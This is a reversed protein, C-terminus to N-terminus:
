SITTMIANDILPPEPSDVCIRWNVLALSVMRPDLFNQFILDLNSPNKKTKKLQRDLYWWRRAMTPGGAFRWKIANRQRAFSSGVNFAPRTAKHKKKQKKKKNKLTTRVGQGGRSGGMSVRNPNLTRTLANVARMQM